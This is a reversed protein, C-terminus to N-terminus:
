KKSNGKKLTLYCSKLNKLSFYISCKGPRVNEVVRIKNKQMFPIITAYAKEFEKRSEIESKAIQFQMKLGNEFKFTEVTYNNM